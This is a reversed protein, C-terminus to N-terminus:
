NPLNPSLSSLLWRRNAAQSRASRAAFQSSGGGRFPTPASRWDGRARLRESIIKFLESQEVLGVLVKWLERRTHKARVEIGRDQLVSVLENRWLLQVVAALSVGHNSAARRRELFIIEADPLRTAEWVGWWEPLTEMCESIHTAGVVITMTNFCLEYVARQGPLRALTDRDSKIEYGSLSGNVVALDVRARGQSLSLEDIIASEPEAAHTSRLKKRLASRIDSDRFTSNTQM